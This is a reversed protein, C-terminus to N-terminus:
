RPVRAPLHCTQWISCLLLVAEGGPTSTVKRCIDRSICISNRIGNGGQALTQTSSTHLWSEPGAKPGPSGWHSGQCCAPPCVGSALHPGRAGLGCRVVHGNARGDQSATGM